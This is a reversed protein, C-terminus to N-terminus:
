ERISGLGPVGSSENLDGGPCYQKHLGIKDAGADIQWPVEVPPQTFRRSAPATGRALQDQGTNRPGNLLGFWSARRPPETQIRGQNRRGAPADIERVFLDMAENLKGSTLTQSASAAGSCM